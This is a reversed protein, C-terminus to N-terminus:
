FARRIMCPTVRSGAALGEACEAIRDHSGLSFSGFYASGIEAIRPDYWFQM